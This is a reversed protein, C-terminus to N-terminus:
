PMGYLVGWRAWKSWGSSKEVDLSGVFGIIDATVSAFGALLGKWSIRGEVPPHHQWYHASYRAISAAQLLLKREAPPYDGSTLIPHEMELVRDRIGEFSYDNRIYSGRIAVMLEKLWNKAAKSYPLTDIVHFFDHEWDLIMEPIDSYYGPDEVTGGPLPLNMNMLCDVLEEFRPTGADSVCGDLFELARNHWWGVEDYPNAPNAPDGPYDLAAAPFHAERGQVNVLEQERREDQKRCSLAMIAILLIAAHKLITKM